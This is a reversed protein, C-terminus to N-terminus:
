NDQLPYATFMVNRRSDKDNPQKMDQSPSSTAPTPNQETTNQTTSNSKTQYTLIM